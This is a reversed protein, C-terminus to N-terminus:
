GLSRVLATVTAAAVVVLVLPARVALLAVAAALGALRADPVLRAGTALAGTVVLAALLAAPLRGSLRDLAPHAALVRPPVVMGALKQLYCIGCLVGVAVWSM